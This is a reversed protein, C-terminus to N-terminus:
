DKFKAAIEATERLRRSSANRWKLVAPAIQGTRAAEIIRDLKKKIDASSVKHQEIAEKLMRPDLQAGAQTLRRLADKMEGEAIQDMLNSIRSYKELTEIRGYGRPFSVAM